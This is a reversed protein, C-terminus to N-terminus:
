KKKKLAYKETWEKATKNFADKNERYQAAVDEQVPSDINPEALMQRVIGLVQEIKIQPSWTKGLIDACIAGDKQQINPHYTKTIFFVDPPKFPYQEKIALKIEFIGKEYPSKEPGEIKCKWSFLDSGNELDVDAWEIPEKKLTAYEKQLRKAM